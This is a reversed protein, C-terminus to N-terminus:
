GLKRPRRILRSTEAGRDQTMTWDCDKELATNMINMAETEKTVFDARLASSTKVAEVSLIRRPRLSSGVLLRRPEVHPRPRTSLRRCCFAPGSHKPM